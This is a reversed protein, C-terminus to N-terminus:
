AAARREHIGRASAVSRVQMWSCPALVAQIIVQKRAHQLEEKCGHWLEKQKVNSPYKFVRNSQKKFCQPVSCKYLRPNGEEVKKIKDMICPIYRILIIYLKLNKDAFPLLYVVKTSKENTSSREQRLQSRLHTTYSLVSFWFEVSMFM